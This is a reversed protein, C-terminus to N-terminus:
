STRLAPEQHAEQAEPADRRFPSDRAGTASFRDKLRLAPSEIYRYSLAALGFVVAFSFVLSGWPGLDVVNRSLFQFVFLHILYIGYSRRGIWVLPALALFKALPSKRSLAVAAIVVAVACEFLVGGWRLLMSDRDTYIDSFFLLVVVGCGAGAVTIARRAFPTIRPGLWLLAIAVACGVLLMDARTDSRFYVRDARISAPMVDFGVRRGETLLRYFDVFTASPTATVLHHRWAASAAAVSLVLALLLGRRARLHLLGILVVPWVLYFQEEIALSWTPSLFGPSSGHVFHWWNAYYFASAFINGSDPRGLTNEPHTALNVVIAVLLIVGLLPLLRLARRAYFRRLGIRGNRDYEVLLLTTILFGSLVFFADVGLKGNKLIVEGQFNYHTCLVALIAFARVGDLAPNYSAYDRLERAADPGPARHELPPETSRQRTAVDDV